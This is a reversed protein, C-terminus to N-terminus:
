GHMKKNAINQLEWEFERLDRPVIRRKSDSSEAQRLLVHVDDLIDQLTNPKMNKFQRTRWLHRAYEVRRLRLGCDVCVTTKVKHAAVNTTKCLPCRELKVTGKM